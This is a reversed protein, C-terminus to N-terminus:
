TWAWAGPRTRWTRATATPTWRRTHARGAWPVGRLRGEPSGARRPPRRFASPFGCGRHVLAKSTSISMSLPKVIGWVDNQLAPLIKHQLEPADCWCETTADAWPSSHFDPHDVLPRRPIYQSVKIHNFPTRGRALIVTVEACMRVHKSGTFRQPDGM